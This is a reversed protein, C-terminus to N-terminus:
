GQLVWMCWRGGVECVYDGLEKVKKAQASMEAELFDQAQKLNLLAGPLRLFVSLIAVRSLLPVASKPLAPPLRQPLRAARRLLIVACRFRLAAPAAAGLVRRSTM